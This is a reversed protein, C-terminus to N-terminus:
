CGVLTSELVGLGMFIFFIMVVLSEKGFNRTFPSLLESLYDPEGFTQIRYTISCLKVGETGSAKCVELLM